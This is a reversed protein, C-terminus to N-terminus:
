AENRQWVNDVSSAGRPEETRRYRREVGIGPGRVEREHGGCVRTHLAVVDVNVITACFRDQLSVRNRTEAIDTLPMSLYKCQIVHGNKTGREDVLRAESKQATHTDGHGSLREVWSVEANM